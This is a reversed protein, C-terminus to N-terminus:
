RCSLWAMCRKVSARTAERRRLGAVATATELSRGTALCNGDGDSDAIGVKGSAFPVTELVMVAMGVPGCGVRSTLSAGQVGLVVQTSLILM